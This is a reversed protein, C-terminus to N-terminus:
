ALAGLARAPDVARSILDLLAAPSDVLYMHGGDIEASEFSGTTLERWAALEAASVLDDDRGRVALVPVDLPTGEDHRYNEHMAVDTRLTPLLLDRLEPEDLAPHRYGAIRAVGAVFEDDPLGTVRGARPTGPRQSGSVVLTLAVEPALASLARVSEYALLAGYSHGFVVVREVGNIATLLEPVIVNLLSDLDTCEDEALRRERGPLQVPMVHLDSRHGLWSHFFGAGAGAPPFCLVAPNSM